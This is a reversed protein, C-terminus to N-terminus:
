QTQLRQLEETARRRVDADDSKLLERLQTRAGSVNGKLAMIRAAGFRAGALDPRLRIAELFEALAAESQGKRELLSGRFAHADAFNPDARVAAEVERAAEDMRGMEALVVASNTRVEADNPKLRVSREFYFAAGTLDRRLALLHGLNGLAEPYDPYIQLARLAETKARDMEGESALVSALVNHAEAVDPDFAISKELAAIADASRGAVWHALGLQYWLLPEDPAIKVARNLVATARPAQRSQTLADALDLYAPASRPERTLASEFAAVANAPKGASLLALGLQVSFEPNAAREKAIGAILRPLGRALNSREIVQAVATYLDNEPTRGLPSPYYPVVEGRYQNHDFEEREEIAALLDGRPPTRQIYHDTMVAHIVDQTRRKPMHCAICDTNPAHPAAHCSACVTNYHAVGDRGRRIDHPDHCTTCTLKGASRLFCASKRLRYASHAIEFDDQYKSGPAHDFYIAFGGLPEGPRYSFPGRDFRRISHPLDLSTTELHCQMCVEMQREPTLRSPNVITRRVDGGTQAARVHNGGPGHCRQCDIGEPLTGTFLPDSGPAENAAPIKPIANHCFVCEYSVFRRTQPHRSDFGPSMSWYGGKEAYWGLPLEIFAGSAMRHLYSRAHEGSGIVYDIKLEEVNTEKGEFGLQWRRQYYAGDRAIMSYHTNSLSHLFAHNNQYDEITNAPAPRYFSRGMATLRYDAAIQRHCGACLKADIYENGPAAQLGAGCSLLLLLLTSGTRGM